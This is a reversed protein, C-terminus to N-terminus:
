KHSDLLPIKEDEQAFLLNMKRSRAINEREPTKYEPSVNIGSTGSETKYTPLESTETDCWKTPQEDIKGKGKSDNRLKLKQKNGTLFDKIRSRISTGKVKAFFTRLNLSEEPKIEKLFDTIRRAEKKWEGNLRKSKLYKKIIGIIETDLLISGSHEKTTKLTCNGDLYDLIGVASPREV